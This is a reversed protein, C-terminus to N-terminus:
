QSYNYCLLAVDIKSAMDNAGLYKEM